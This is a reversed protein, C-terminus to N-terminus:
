LESFALRKVGLLAVGQLSKYDQAEWTKDLRELEEEGEEGVQWTDALEVEFLQSCQACARLVSPLTDCCWGHLTLSSLASLAPLVCALTDAAGTFSCHLELSSLQTLSALAAAATGAAATAAPSASAPTRTMQDSGHEAGNSGAEAVTAAAQAAAAAEAPQWNTPLVLHQLSHAWGTLYRLYDETLKPGSGLNGDWHFSEVSPCVRVLQQLVAAPLAGFTTISTVGRWAASPLAAAMASRQQWHLQMQQRLQWSRQQDKSVVCTLMKTYTCVFTPSFLFGSPWRELTSQM